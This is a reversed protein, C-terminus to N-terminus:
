KPRDPDPLGGELVEKRVDPDDVVYFFLEINEHELKPKLSITETMGNETVIHYYKEWHSFERVKGKVSALKEGKRNTLVFKADPGRPITYFLLECSVDARTLRPPLTMSRPLRSESALNFHSEVCGTIACSFACVAVILLHKGTRLFINWM